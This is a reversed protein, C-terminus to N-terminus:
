NFKVKRWSRFKTHTTQVTFFEPQREGLAECIAIRDCHNRIATTYSHAGAITQPLAEKGPDVGVYFSFPAAEDAGPGRYLTSVLRLYFTLSKGHIESSLATCADLFLDLVLSSPLGVAFYSSSPRKQM